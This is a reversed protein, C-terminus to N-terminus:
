VLHGAVGEWAHGGLRWSRCVVGVFVGQLVEVSEVGVVECSCSMEVLWRLYVFANTPSMAGCLGARTWGAAGMSM